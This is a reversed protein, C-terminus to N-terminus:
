YRQREVEYFERSLDVAREVGKLFGLMSKLVDVLEPRVGGDGKSRGQGYGGFVNGPASQLIAQTTRPLYTALYGDYGIGKLIRFIAKYDAHGMGHQCHNTENLHIHRIHPAAARLADPISGEEINMHFVDPQVGLNDLGLEEIYNLAEYVTTLVGPIGEYCNLPELVISIGRDKAHKCVERISERFIERLIGIPERPFPLEPVAPQAACLEIYRAGIDAALDVTDKAYQLAQRRVEPKSSALNREEGAHYYGWAALVEPVDLGFDAVRQKWEGGNMRTPDGPLDVGDYGAEKAARLVEEPAELVNYGVWPLTDCVLTFKFSM